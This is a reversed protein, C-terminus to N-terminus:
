PTAGLRAELAALRARLDRVEDRLEPVRRQAAELTHLKRIPQAPSGRVVARDPVDKSVGAQAAVVVQDGLRIHGTVGAQGCLTVHHGLTTSGAIGSQACLLGHAGIVVNHAVMVLNDIKTGRGIVTRGLRARDVTAGAGIEVDDELVVIGVQPIKRHVGRETAYGFGDSGIVAGAHVIVREGLVCGERLVAHSHLVCGHLDSSCM